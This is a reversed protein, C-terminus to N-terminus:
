INTNAYVNTCFRNCLLEDPRGHGPGVVGGPFLLNETVGVESFGDFQPHRSWVWSLVKRLVFAKVPSSVVFSESGSCRSMVM